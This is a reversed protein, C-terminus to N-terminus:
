SIMRCRLALVNATEGRRFLKRLTQAKYGARGHNIDATAKAARRTIQCCCMSTPNGPDIKATREDIDSPRKGLSHPERRVYCVLLRVREIQRERIVGEVMGPRLMNRHVDGVLAPEVCVNVADQLGGASQRDIIDDGTVHLRQNKRDRAPDLRKSLVNILNSKSLM